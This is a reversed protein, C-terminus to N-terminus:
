WITIREEEKLFMRDGEKVDFATYFEDISRVPMNARLPNPSHVDVNLLLQLYEERGKQCWVRAWNYFFDQLKYNEERQLAQLACTLGGADAINESVTLRGNVKGGYIEIGDWLKVMEEARASFNEYDEEKWWNVLNGEADVKAGNNDFAHSIEHAIVAGIGGYNASRSQKLSYFPEQLIAAPFCIVNSTPSYYANVTDASMHWEKRDVDKAWKAKQVASVIQNFDLVTELLSKEPDVKMKKYHDPYSDPFGILSDIADLKIIAKEITEKSLWTNEALREKYVDIMTKVMDEVDARAEKGFYKKAYYQGLVQDYTSRTLNFAHKEKDELELIGMLQLAFFSGKQRLSESLYPTAFNLCKVILWSKIQDLKEETILEVLHEFFEPETVIVQKLEPHVLEQLLTALNFDPHYGRIEEVSRPNYMKTYDAREEASRMLPALSKDFSFTDEVLKTIDAEPIGAESLVNHSMMRYIELLQEGVENEYYSKDPLIIQPPILYLANKTAQMMDAMVGLHFLSPLGKNIWEKTLSALDELGAVARIQELLPLVPAAGAEDREAFNRSKKYFALMEEEEANECPIKGEVMADLDNRLLEEMTEALVMFGGTSPKDAPIVMEELTKANVAQYLDDKVRTVDISM